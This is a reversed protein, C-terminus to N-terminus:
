WGGHHMGRRGGHPEYGYGYGGRAFEGPHHPGYSADFAAEGPHHAYGDPVMEGPHHMGSSGPQLGTEAQAAFLQGELEGIERFLQQAKATDPRPAASLASLEAQKAYLQQEIAAAKQYADPAQDAAFSANTLGAAVLAFAFALPLFTQKQM